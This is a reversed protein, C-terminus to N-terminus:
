IVQESIKEGSVNLKWVGREVAIFNDHLQLTQRIKEKWHANRETKKSGKIVEYIEKLTAKGGLWEIAGQVLDRWTINNFQRLDFSQSVTRKLEVAWVENKKFILLHEHIIPIFRNNAYKKNDSWCNHQVKIVHSELDGFWTMDKIISYYKGKKRIDGVLFAHRGGNLLSQYIKANVKDLKHIFEDYSMVNSLDDPDYSGRQTEYRIIDWYPPHSFVFDSGYPIEDKLANWGTNLDLHVSNTIGLERAVDLGTGGGSFVEVFRKPKSNPYFHLILDKIVHGSCNGRYSSDGWKGREPYSIISQM